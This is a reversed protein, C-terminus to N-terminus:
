EGKIVSILRKFIYKLIKFGDSFTKLKSPNDKMREEYHIPIFVSAFKNKNEAAFIALSTELEFGDVDCDYKQLFEQTFVRFGSLIDTYDTKWFYNIIHKVLVNGFSHFPRTNENFYTSSLRDGTIFDYGNNIYKSILNILNEDIKYTNDGDVMIFIADEDKFEQQFVRFVNGKGQNIVCHISANATQAIEITRDNSNNDFVCIQYEKIGCCIFTEKFLEITEKITKEENLCPIFVIFKKNTKM